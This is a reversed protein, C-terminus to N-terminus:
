LQMLILAGSADSYLTNIEAQSLVKNFVALDDIVGRTGNTQNYQTFVTFVTSGASGAQYSGTDRLVGDFYLKVSTGDKVCTIMHFKDTELNSDYTYSTSDDGNDWTITDSASQICRYYRANDIELIFIRWDSAGGVTTPHWWCNISFDSSTTMGLDSNIQLKDSDNDKVAGKGYKGTIFTVNTNTLDYSNASDTADDEFRYYAQLNADNILYTKYLQAM